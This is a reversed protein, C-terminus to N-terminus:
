LELIKMIKTQIAHFEIINMIKMKRLRFVFMTNIQKLRFHFEKTEWDASPTSFEDSNTILYPLRNLGLLKEVKSCCNYKKVNSFDFLYDVPLQIFWTPPKEFNLDESTCSQSLSDLKLKCKLFKRRNLFFLLYIGCYNFLYFNVLCSKNSTPGTHVGDWYSSKLDVSRHCIVM